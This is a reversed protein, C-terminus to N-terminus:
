PSRGTRRLEAVHWRLFNLMFLLSLVTVGLLAWFLLTQGGPLASGRTHLALHGYFLLVVGVQLAYKTKGMWNAGVVREPRSLEGRVGTVLLERFLNLLVLWLPALGLDVFVLLASLVMVKDVTPDLLTGLRSRAHLRRALWGDLWDTLAGLAFLGGALAVMWTAGGYSLAIIPPVLALRALTVM